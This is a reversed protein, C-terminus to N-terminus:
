CQQDYNEGKAAAIPDPKSQLPRQSGAQIELTLGAAGGAGAFVVSALAFPLRSGVVSM